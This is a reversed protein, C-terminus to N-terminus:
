TAGAKTLDARIDMVARAFRDFEDPEFAFYQYHGASNGALVVYRNMSSDEKLRLSVTCSDNMLPTDIKRIVRGTMVRKLSKFLGAM